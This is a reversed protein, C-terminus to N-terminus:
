EGAAHLSLTFSVPHYPLALRVLEAHFRNRQSKLLERSTAAPVVVHLAVWAHNDEDPDARLRVEIAQPDPFCARALALVSQFKKEAEHQRLFEVVGAELVPEILTATSM